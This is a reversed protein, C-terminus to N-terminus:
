SIQDRPANSADKNTIRFMRKIAPSIGAGLEGEGEQSNMRLMRQSAKIM